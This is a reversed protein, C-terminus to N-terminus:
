GDVAGADFLDLLCLQEADSNLFVGFVVLCNSVYDFLQPGGHM